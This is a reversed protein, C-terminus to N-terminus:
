AVCSLKTKKCRRIDGNATYKADRKVTRCILRESSGNKARRVGVCNLDGYSNRRAGKKFLKSHAILM